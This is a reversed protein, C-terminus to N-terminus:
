CSGGTCEGPPGVSRAVGEMREIVRAVRGWDLEAGLGTRQVEALLQLWPDVGRNYVDRHVELWVRGDETRALLLPRYVIEVTDGVRALAYLAAADDPHLRICGHSQFHYVSAPANTAHIGWTGPSLGLWHRGLPNDPGPPVRERVVQGKAAMEAQISPPVIWTKDVAKERVRFRGVPTPWDPRGLGVPYHAVLRGARYLYLMRQPINIVVGEEQVQPVLHRDDVRLRQGPHIPRAPDLGNQRALLMPDMGYRAGILILYEGRVVTHELDGGVLPQALSPVAQALFLALCVIPLTTM